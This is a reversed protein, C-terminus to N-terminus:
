KTVAKHMAKMFEELSVQPVEVYYAHALFPNKRLMCGCLGESQRYSFCFLSEPLLSISIGAVNPNM